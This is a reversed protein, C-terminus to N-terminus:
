PVPPPTVPPNELWHKGGPSKEPTAPPTATPTTDWMSDPSLHPSKEPTTAPTKEPTAPPTTDPSKEPSKETDPSKEPSTAPPKEPTAATPVEDSDKYNYYFSYEEGVKTIKLPSLMACNLVNNFILKHTPQTAVKDSHQVIFGFHVVKYKFGEESPVHVQMKDLPNAVVQYDGGQKSVEETKRDVMVTLGFKQGGFPIYHEGEAACFLGAGLLGGKRFHGKKVYESDVPMHSPQVTWHAHVPKNGGEGRYLLQLTTRWGKLDKNLWTLLSAYSDCAMVAYQVYSTVFRYWEMTDGFEVGMHLKCVKGSTQLRQPVYVQVNKKRRGYVRRVSLKDLVGSRGGVTDEFEPVLIVNHKGIHKWNPPIVRNFSAMLAEGPAEADGVGKERAATDEGKTFLNRKSSKRGKNKGRASRKRKGARKWKHTVSDRWVLKDKYWKKAATATLWKGSARKLEEQVFDGFEQSVEERKTSFQIYGRGVGTLDKPTYVCYKDNKIGVRCTIQKGRQKGKSFTASVSRDKKPTENVDGVTPTSKALTRQDPTKKATSNAANVNEDLPLKPEVTTRDDTNDQEDIATSVAAPTSTMVAPPETTAEASPEAANAKQRKSRRLMPPKAELAISASAQVLLDLSSVQSASMNLQSCCKSHMSILAVNPFCHSCCKSHLTKPMKSICAYTCQPEHTTVVDLACLTFRFCGCQENDCV